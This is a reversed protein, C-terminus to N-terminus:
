EYALTSYIKLYMQGIIKWDYKGVEERTNRSLRLRLEKHNILRVIADALAESSGPDVMLDTKGHELVDKLGGVRAAVIPRGCAMAELAVLGFPEVLSPIVFVEAESMAMLKMEFDLFGAFVVKDEVKLRRSLEKLKEGYGSDRGIVVLKINEYREKILAMARILYQFGKREHLIGVALILRDNLDIEFKHRFEISNKVSGYKALNLGNPIIVIKNKDIGYAIAEKKVASSIVTVKSAKHLTLRGATLLYISYLFKIIGGAKQPSSPFGHLTVIYRKGAITCLLAVFDIFLHGFGHLHFVRFNRKFLFSLLHFASFINPPMVTKLHLITRPTPMLPFWFVKVQRDHIATVRDFCSKTPYYGSVVKVGYGRSSLTQAISQVVIGGGGINHPPYEPTVLLIKM